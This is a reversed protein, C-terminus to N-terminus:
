VRLLGATRWSHSFAVRGDNYMGNGWVKQGTPHLYHSKVEHLLLDDAMRSEM